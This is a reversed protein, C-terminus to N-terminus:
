LSSLKNRRRSLFFCQDENKLNMSAVEYFFVQHRSLKFLVANNTLKPLFNWVSVSSLIIILALILFNLM